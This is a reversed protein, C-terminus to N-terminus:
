IEFLSLPLREEFNGPEGVGNFSEKLLRRGFIEFRVKHTDESLLFMQYVLYPFMLDGEPLETEFWSLGPTPPDPRRRRGIFNRFRNRANFDLKM